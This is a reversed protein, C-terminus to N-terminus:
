LIGGAHGISAKDDNTREDQVVDVRALLGADDTNTTRHTNEGKEGHKGSRHLTGYSIRSGFVPEIRRGRRLRWRRRPRHNLVGRLRTDVVADGLFPSKAFSKAKSSSRM